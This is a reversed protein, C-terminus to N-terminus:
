KIKFRAQALWNGIQESQPDLLLAASWADAARRYDQNLWYRYWAQFLIRPEGWTLGHVIEAAAQPQGNAILADGYLLRTVEDRRGSQWLYTVDKLASQYDGLSLSIQIRRQRATLNEADIALAQAFRAQSDSLDLSQRAQDITFTDFKQPDYRMLELRAQEVAGLNAYWMALLPRWFFLFLMILGAAAVFLLAVNRVRKQAPWRAADQSLDSTSARNKESQNIDGSCKTQFPTNLFWTYGFLLGILPLLRTVYFVVDVMGHLFVATLAALGTWGWVSIAQRQLAKWAWTAAALGAMILGLFGLVGQEVWVELFTNHAHAIYPVNLLLVYVPHVLWFSMLGSGTFPVDGVLHWAQRWLVARSQLGGGPDPLAGLLRDFNGSLLVCGLAFMGLLAISFWFIIQQKREPLWGRQFWALAALFATGFLALWAGRSSTMFLGGLVGGTLLAFLVAAWTKGQRWANQTLIVGFPLAALLTGAAVNGHIKPGPLGTLWSNMLIGAHTILALKGPEAAFDHQLPWYVALAAAFALFGTAPWRLKREPLAVVAYYVVFAALLRSFQLIAASRDYSIWSAVAGSILGLAWPIELGTRPLLHRTRIARVVSAASLIVLGAGATATFKETTTFASLALILLLWELGIWGGM